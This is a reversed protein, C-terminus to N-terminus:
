EAHDIYFAYVATYPVREEDGDIGCYREPTGGGQTLLRQIASVNNFLGPLTRDPTANLRLWPINGLHGSQFRGPSSGVVKSGDSAEWTPGAYHTGVEQFNFDYLDASPGSFRWALAGEAGPRCVYNQTGFAFLMTTLVGDVALKQPVDPHRIAPRVPEPTYFRYTASYYVPMEKGVQAATCPETPAVGGVTNVRQIAHVTSLVGAGRNKVAALRLWPISGETAPADATKTGVVSSGDHFQWSPGEFHYGLNRGGDRTYLTAEPRAFKWFFGSGDDKASCTYVQIGHAYASRVFRGTVALEAPIELELGSDVVDDQEALKVQAEADLEALPSSNTCAASILGALLGGHTWHRSGRM